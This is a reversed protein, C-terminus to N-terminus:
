VTDIFDEISMSKTKGAALNRESEDLRVIFAQRKVTRYVEKLLNYEQKPIKVYDKAATQEM